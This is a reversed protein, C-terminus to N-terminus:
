AVFELLKNGFGILSPVLIFLALVIMLISRPTTSPLIRTM